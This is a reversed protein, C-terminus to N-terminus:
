FVQLFDRKNVKLHSSQPVSNKRCASSRLCKLICPPSCSSLVNSHICHPLNNGRLSLRVPSFNNNVIQNSLHITNMKISKTMITSRLPYIQLIMFHSKKLKLIDQIKMHVTITVNMKNFYM